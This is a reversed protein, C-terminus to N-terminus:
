AAIPPGRRTFGILHAKFISEYYYPIFIIYCTQCINLCVRDGTKMTSAGVNLAAITDFSNESHTHPMGTPTFPHSHTVLRGNATHHMHIFVTNSFVFNMFLCLLLCCFIDNFRQRM